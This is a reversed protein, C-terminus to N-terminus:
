LKKGREPVTFTARVRGDGSQQASPDNGDLTTVGSDLNLELRQGRVVNKGRTLIVNGGLTVAKTDVDYIGWAAEVSESPSTLHVAGQADVRRVTAKDKSREYFVRAKGASLTM